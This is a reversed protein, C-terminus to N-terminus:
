WPLARAAAWRRLPWSMTSENSPSHKSQPGFRSLAFRHYHLVVSIVAAKPGAAGEAPLDVAQPAKAALWDCPGGLMCDAVLAACVSATLADFATDRNVGWGRWIM